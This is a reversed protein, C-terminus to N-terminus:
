EFVMNECAIELKRRSMSECLSVFACVADQEEPPLERIVADFEKEADRLRLLMGYYADDGNALMQLASMKKEVEDLM